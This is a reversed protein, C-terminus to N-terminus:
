RKSADPGPMVCFLAFIIVALTPAFPTRHQTPAEEYHRQEVRWVMLQLLVGTVVAAVLGRKWYYGM